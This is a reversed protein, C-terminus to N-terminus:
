EDGEDEMFGYGGTGNLLVSKAIEMEGLCPGPDVSCLGGIYTSYVHDLGGTVLCVSQIEGDEALCTLMKLIEVISENPTLKGEGTVWEENIGVVKNNNNTKSLEM